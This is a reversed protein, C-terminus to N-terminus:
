GIFAVAVWSSIAVLKQGAQRFRPRHGIVQKADHARFRQIVPGNRFPVSNDEVNAVELGEVPIQNRALRQAESRSVLFEIAEKGEADIRHAAPQRRVLGGVPRAKRLDVGIVKADALFKVADEAVIRRGRRAM